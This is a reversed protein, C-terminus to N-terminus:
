LVRAEKKLKELLREAVEDPAGTLFEVQVTQVPVELGLWEFRSHLGRLDEPTLGLDELRRVDLPKKKAMMIGKLSAYRPQNAGSQIMLVAPLEVEVEDFVGGELEQRIRLRDPQPAELGIVLPLSEYGLWEAIVGATQAFGLDESAIGTLVLDPREPALVAALVRGVCYPSTFPIRPDSVLVARDCGMALAKRLTETMREPGVAVALVDGGWQERLRLAAEIAYLDSENMEWALGEERVWQGDPTLSLTYDRHPVQKVCVAVKM